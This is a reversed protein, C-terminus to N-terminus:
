WRRLDESKCYALRLIFHGMLDFKADSFRSTIDKKNTFYKKEAQFDLIGDIAASNFAFPFPVEKIKTKILVSEKSDRDEVSVMERSRTIVDISRLLRLRDLSLMEFEDLTLEEQPCDSYLSLISEQASKKTPERVVGHIKSATSTYQM